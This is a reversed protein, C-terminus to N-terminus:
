SQARLKWNKNQNQFFQANGMDVIKINFHVLKKQELMIHKEVMMMYTNLKEIIYRLIKKEM